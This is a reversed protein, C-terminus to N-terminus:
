FAPEKRLIGGSVQWSACRDASCSRACAGDHSECAAHGGFFPRLTRDRRRAWPRLFSEAQVAPAGGCGFARNFASRRFFWLRNGARGARRACSPPRGSAPLRGWGALDAALGPRKRTPKVALRLIPPATSRLRALRRNRAAAAADQGKRSAFTGVINQDGPRRRQLPREGAKEFVKGGRKGRGM